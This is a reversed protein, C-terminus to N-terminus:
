NKTRSLIKALTFKGPGTFFLGLLVVGLEIPQAAGNFGYGGRIISAIAIVMTFLILACAPRFFIGAALLLGGAFEAMAAAFGWFAPAFSIGLLRTFAGGVSKWTSMGGVVKPLGHVFAFM